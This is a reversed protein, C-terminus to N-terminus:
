KFLQTESILVMTNLFYISQCILTILIINFADTKYLNHLSSVLDMSGANIEFIKAIHCIFSSETCYLSPHSDVARQLSSSDQKCICLVICLYSASPDTLANTM